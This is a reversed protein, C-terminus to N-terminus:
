ESEPAKEEAENATAEAKRAKAPEAKKENVVVSTKGSVQSRAALGELVATSIVNAYLAVARPSDDNGPIIFDIGNPDCNTDAVGVVPIGLKQAEKMALHEKKCDVIFLMSPTGKMDRVGGLSRDLKIRKREMLLAEKKIICDYSGDGGAM